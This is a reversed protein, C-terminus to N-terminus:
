SDTLKGGRSIDDAQKRSPTFIGGPKIIKSPDAKFIRKGISKKNKRKAHNGGKFMQNKYTNIFEKKFAEWLKFLTSNKDVGDNLLLQEIKYTARRVKRTKM